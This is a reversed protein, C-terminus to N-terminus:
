RLDSEDVQLCGAETLALKGVSIPQAVMLSSPVIM